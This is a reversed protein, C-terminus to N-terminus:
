YIFSYPLSVENTPLCLLVGFVIVTLCVRRGPLMELSDAEPKTM